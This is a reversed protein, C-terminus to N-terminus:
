FPIPDGGNQWFDEPLRSHIDALQAQPFQEKVAAVLGGDLKLAKMAVAFERATFVIENESKQYTELDAIDQVITFIAGDYECQVFKAAVPQHGAETAEADLVALARQCAAAIRIVEAVNEAEIAENLMGIARGYKAATEASVIAPLRDIGWKREMMRAAEDFGAIAFDCEIQQRTAGPALLRDSKRQRKPRPQSTM